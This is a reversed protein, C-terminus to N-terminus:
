FASSRSEPSIRQAFRRKRICEALDTSLSLSGEAAKKLRNCLFQFPFPLFQRFDNKLILQPQRPSLASSGPLGSRKKQFESFLQPTRIKRNLKLCQFKEFFTQSSSM